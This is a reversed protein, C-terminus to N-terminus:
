RAHGCSETSQAPCQQPCALTQDTTRRGACSSPRTPPQEPCALYCARNAITPDLAARPYSHAIRDTLAEVLPRLLDLVRDFKDDAIANSAVARTNAQEERPKIAPLLPPPTPSQQDRVGALQLVTSGILDSSPASTAQTRPTARHGMARAALGSGTIVGLMFVWAYRIVRSLPWRTHHSRRHIYYPNPM